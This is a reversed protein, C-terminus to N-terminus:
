PREGTLLSVVRDCASLFRRDHSAIVVTTRSARWRELLRYLEAVGAPDLSATPEDLLLLSPELSLAVAFAVRRMEGASLHFPTQELFRGPDLGVESLAAAARERARSAGMGLRELGFTLEERVTEAFFMREPSQPLYFVHQEGGSAARSHRRVLRGRSPELVGGALLLLTSKGSGNDGAVGVCEGSRVTLDFRSLVEAGRGYAFSVEDFEVEPDGGPSPAGRPSPPPPPVLASRGPWERYEAPAGRFSVAGGDLCVVEDAGELESEGPAAWVVTAGREHAERVFEVCRATMPEDLFATPEDLLVVDPDQLWVTALALRQKEGGSLQHPNRASLASLEFRSEAEAVRRAADEGGIGPPLSLALEHRVSSTVLQNDPEQLLLAVRPARGGSSDFAISGENPEVLSALVSLLTTKGSGNAGVLAVWRGREVHLQIGDLIKRRPGRPSPVTVTVGDLRIM